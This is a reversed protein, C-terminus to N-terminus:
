PRSLDSGTGLRSAVGANMGVCRIDGRLFDIGHLELGNRLATESHPEDEQRPCHQHLSSGLRVCPQEHKRHDDKEHSQSAAMLLAREGALRSRPSFRSPESLYTPCGIQLYLEGNCPLSLSEVQFTNDSTDSIKTTGSNPVTSADFLQCQSRINTSVPRM